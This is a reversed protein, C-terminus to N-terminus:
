DHPEELSWIFLRRMASRVASLPRREVLTYRILRRGSRVPATRSLAHAEWRMGPPVALAVLFTEFRRVIHEADRGASAARALGARLAPILGDPRLSVSLAPPVTDTLFRALTAKLAVHKRDQTSELAVQLAGTSARRQAAARRPWPTTALRAVAHQTRLLRRSLVPLSPAYWRSAAQATLDLRAPSDKSALATWEPHLPLRVLNDELDHALQRQLARRQNQELAWARDLASPLHSTPAASMRTWRHRLATMLAMEEHFGLGSRLPDFERPNM